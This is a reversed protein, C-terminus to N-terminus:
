NVLFLEFQKSMHLNKGEDVVCAAFTTKEKIWALGEKVGLIMVVKAAVEAQAASPAIVTASIADTVAPKATRPDIIHHQMEGNLMWHRYDRGSTAVGSQSVQIECLNEDPNFPNAVGIVWAQGDSMAGSVAIDGGADMLIPAQLGLRQVVQDACWGKVYGGFDLCFSPSVCITKSESNLKLVNSLCVNTRGALMVGVDAARSVVRDRIFSEEYGAALLAPLVAPSVLGASLGEAELAFNVLAWLAESCAFDSGASRNLRSLESDSQFRSFVSEWEAFWTPVRRVVDLQGSDVAVLMQCGMARFELSQM